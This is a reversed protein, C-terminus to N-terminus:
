WPIRGLDKFREGDKAGIHTVLHCDAWGGIGEGSAIDDPAIPQRPAAITRSVNRYRFTSIDVTQMRSGQPIALLM